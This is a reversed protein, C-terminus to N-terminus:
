QHQPSFRYPHGLLHDAVSPSEPADNQSIVGLVGKDRM